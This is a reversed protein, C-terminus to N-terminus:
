AHLELAPTGDAGEVWDLWASLQDPSGALWNAAVEDALTDEYSYDYIWRSQTAPDVKFNTFCKAPQPNADAWGAATVTRVDTALAAVESDPGDELFCIDFKVAM